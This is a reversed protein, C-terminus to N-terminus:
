KVPFRSLLEGNARGQALAAAYNYDHLLKTSAVLAARFEDFNQNTLKILEMRIEHASQALSTMHEIKAELLSVAERADGLQKELSLRQRLMLEANEQDAICYSCPSADYESQWHACM